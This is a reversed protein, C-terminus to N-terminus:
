KSDPWSFNRLLKTYCVNYSTIRLARRAGGLRAHRLQQRAGGAEAEEEVLQVAVRAERIQRPVHHELAPREVRTGALPDSLPDLRTPDQGVLDYYSRIAYM